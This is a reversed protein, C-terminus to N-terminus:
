GESKALADLVSTSLHWDLAVWRARRSFRQVFEAATVGSADDHASQVEMLMDVHDALRSPLLGQRNLQSVDCGEMEPKYEEDTILWGVACRAGDPGRYACRDPTGADDLTVSPRGQAIVSTVAMDFIDQANM